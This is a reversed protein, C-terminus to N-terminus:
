SPKQILMTVSSRVQRKNVMSIITKLHETIGGTGELVGIVKGEDYAIAFEGLMGSQGGAFIVVDCSKSNEVERDMLGSGTYVIADYDWTPSHYKRV